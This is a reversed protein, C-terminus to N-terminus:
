DSDLNVKYNNCGVYSVCYNILVCEANLDQKKIFNIGIKAAKSWTKFAHWLHGYYEHIITFSATRTETRSLQKQEFFKISNFKEVPCKDIVIFCITRPYCILTM